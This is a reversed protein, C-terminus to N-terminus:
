NNYPDNEFGVKHRQSTWTPTLNDNRNAQKDRSRKKIVNM